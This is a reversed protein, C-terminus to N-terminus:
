ASILFYNLSWLLHRKKGTGLDVETFAALRLVVLCEKKGFYLSLQDM